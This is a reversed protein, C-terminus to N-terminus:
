FFEYFSLVRVNKRNNVKKRRLVYYYTGILYFEICCTKKRGYNIEIYSNMFARTCLKVQYLERFSFANRFIISGKESKLNKPQEKNFIMLSM